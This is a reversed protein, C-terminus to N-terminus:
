SFLRKYANKISSALTGGAETFGSRLDKWAEGSSKKLENLKSNLSKQQKKLYEIEEKIKSRTATSTHIARKELESIRDNLESMRSKAKAFFTEWSQDSRMGLDAMREELEYVTYKMRDFFSEKTEKEFQQATVTDGGSQAQASLMSFLTMMAILIFFLAKKQM